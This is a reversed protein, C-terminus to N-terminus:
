RPDAIIVSERSIQPALAPLDSFVNHGGCVALSRSIIHQGNITYLPRPAIQYFYDVRTKDANARKLRALMNRLQLANAEGAIETGAARSINEM